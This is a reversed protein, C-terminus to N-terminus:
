TDGGAPDQSYTYGDVNEMHLASGQRILQYRVDHIMIGPYPKEYDMKYVICVYGNEIHTAGYTNCFDVATEFDTPVWDPLEDTLGTEEAFAPAPISPSFTLPTGVTMAAILTALIKKKMIDVGRNKHFLPMKIGKPLKLAVGCLAWRVPKYLHPFIMKNM